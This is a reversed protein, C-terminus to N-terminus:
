QFFGELCFYTQWHISIDQDYAEDSPKFLLFTRINKYCGNGVEDFLINLDYDQYLM